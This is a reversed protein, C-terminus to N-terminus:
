VVVNGQVCISLVKVSVCAFVCVCFVSTSFEGVCWLECETSFSVFFM